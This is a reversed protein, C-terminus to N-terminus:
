YHGFIDEATGLLIKLRIGFCRQRYGLIYEATGLVRNLLICFTKLQAREMCAGHLRRAGSHVSRSRETFAGHVSRALETCM